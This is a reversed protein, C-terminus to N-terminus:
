LDVAYSFRHLQLVFDRRLVAPFDYVPLHFVTLRHLVAFPQERDLGGSMNLFIRMALRPSIARRMMQAHRSSPTRVTATYESASSFESCTRNASSSTQM